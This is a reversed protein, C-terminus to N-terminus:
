KRHLKIVQLHSTCLKYDFERYQNFICDVQRIRNILLSKSLHYVAYKVLLQEYVAYKVLVLNENIGFFYDVAWM